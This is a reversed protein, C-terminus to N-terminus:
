FPFTVKGDFSKEYSFVRSRVEEVRIRAESITSILEHSIEHIEIPLRTIRSMLRMVVSVCSNLPDDRLTKSMLPFMITMGKIEKSTDFECNLIISLDAPTRLM